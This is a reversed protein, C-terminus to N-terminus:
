RTVKIKNRQRLTMGAWIGHRPRTRLAYERCQEIVDCSGCIKRALEPTDPKEPFFVEPDVQTCLANAMWPEPEIVAATGSWATSPETATHFTRM